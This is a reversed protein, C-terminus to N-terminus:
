RTTHDNRRDHKQGSRVRRGMRSGLEGARRSHRRDNEDTFGPRARQGKNRHGLILSGHRPTLRRSGAARPRRHSRDCSRVTAIMVCREGGPPPRDPWRAVSSAPWAHCVLPDAFHHEHAPVHAQHRSRCKRPLHPTAFPVKPDNFAAFTGNAARGSVRIHRERCGLRGRSWASRGQRGWSAHYVDSLCYM